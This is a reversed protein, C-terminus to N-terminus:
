QASSSTHSTLAADEEEDEDEDAEEEGDDIFDEDDTDPEEDEADDDDDETLMGEILSAQARMAQMQEDLKDIKGDINRLLTMLQSWRAIDMNERPM